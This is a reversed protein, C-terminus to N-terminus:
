EIKKLKEEAISLDPKYELAQSYYKSANTTNGLRKYIDGLLMYLYALQSPLNPNTSYVGPPYQSLISFIVSKAKEYDEQLSHVLALDYHIDPRFVPNYLVAQRYQEIALEYEEQLFYLKGLFWHASYNEDNTSLVKKLREEMSDYDEPSLSQSYKIKKQIYNLLESPDPDFKLGQEYDKFSSSIEDLKVARKASQFYNAGLFLTLGRAFIVLVLIISIIRIAAPWWCSKEGAAQEPEKSKSQEYWAMM